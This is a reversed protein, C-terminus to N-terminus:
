GLEPHSGSAITPAAGRTGTRLAPPTRGRGSGRVFARRSAPRSRGRGGGGREAVLLPALRARHDGGALGLGCDGAREPDHQILSGLLAGGTSMVEARYHNKHSAAQLVAPKQSGIAKTSFRSPCCHITKVIQRRSPSSANPALCGRAARPCARPEDIAQELRKPPTQSMVTIDLGPHIDADPRPAVLTQGAVSTRLKGTRIRAGALEALGRDVGRPTM